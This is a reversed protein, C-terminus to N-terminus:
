WRGLPKETGDPATVQIRPVELGQQFFTWLSVRHPGAGLELSGQAEMAERRPRVDLARRGDLQLVGYNGTRVAFGYRGVRPAQFTGDVTASLGAVNHPIPASPDEVRDEYDVLGRGLGVRGAFVRRRWLGPRSKRASVWRVPVSGEPSDPLLPGPVRIRLFTPPGEATQPYVRVEEWRAGPFERRVRELAATEGGSVYLVADPAPGDADHWLVVPSARLTRVGLRECSAALSSLYGEGKHFFGQSLHVLSVAGEAHDKRLLDTLTRDPFAKPVLWVHFRHYMAGGGALIAAALLAGALRRPAGPALSRRVAEAALGVLVLLPPVLGQLKGSHPDGSLVHPALGVLLCAGLGTTLGTPRALAFALAATGLVLTPLDLFVEGPLSMYPHDWGEVGLTSLTNWFQDWLVGLARPDVSLRGEVHLSSVAAAHLAFRPHALMPAALVLALALGEVWLVVPREPDGPGAGSRVKLALALAAVALVALLWPLLPGAAVPLFRNVKLSLLTWGVLATAALARPAPAGGRFAGRFALGALFAAPLFLFFPRAAQYCYPGLALAAGWALFRRRDPRNWARLTFLLATSVALSGTVCSQQTMCLVLLPKSVAGLAAAWLGVRRGGAEKGLLYLVWLGALDMLAWALNMTLISSATPLLLCLLALFYQYLPQRDGFPFILHHRGFEVIERADVLSAIYDYWYQPQPDFPKALRLIAAGLLIVGLVLRARDAPVEGGPDPHVPLSRFAAALALVGLLFLWPSPWPLPPQTGAFSLTPGKLSLLTVAVAGCGFAL